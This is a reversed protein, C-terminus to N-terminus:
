RMTTWERTALTGRIGVFMSVRWDVKCLGWVSRGLYGHFTDLTLWSAERWRPRASPHHRRPSRRAGSAAPRVPNERRGFWSVSHLPVFQLHAHLWQICVSVVDKDKYGYFTMEQQLKRNTRYAFSAPKLRPQGSSHASLPFVWLRTSRRQDWLEAWIQKESSFSIIQSRVPECSLIFAIKWEPQIMAPFMTEGSGAHVHLQRGGTAEKGNVKNANASGRLAVRRQLRVDANVVDSASFRPEHGVSSNSSM